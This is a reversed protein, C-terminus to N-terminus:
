PGVSYHISCRLRGAWPKSKPILVLLLCAENVAAYPRLLGADLSNIGSGGLTRGLDVGNSAFHRGVRASPAVPPACATALGGRLAQRRGNNASFGELCALTPVPPYKAKSGSAWSVRRCCGRADKSYEM